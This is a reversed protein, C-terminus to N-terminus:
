RDGGISEDLNLMSEDFLKLRNEEVLRDIRLLKHTILAIRKAEEVIVKIRDSIEIPMQRAELEVIQANGIIVSLPTNIEHNVSAALEIVAKLKEQAIVRGQAAKLEEQAKSLSRNKIELERQHTIREISVAVQGAMIELLQQREGDFGDPDPHNFCLVGILDGMVLLPLVIVTDHYERVGDREPSRGRILIPTKQEAVWGALGFGKGFHLFDLLNVTQGRTAVEELRDKKKSLLFLSASEYPVMYAILELAELLMAKGVPRERFIRTIDAFLSLKDRLHSPPEQSKVTTVTM